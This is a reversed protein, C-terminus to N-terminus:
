PLPLSKNGAKTKLHSHFSKVYETEVELLQLSYTNNHYLLARGDNTIAEDDVQIETGLHKVIIKM